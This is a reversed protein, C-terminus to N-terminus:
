NIVLVFILDDTYEVYNEIDTNGNRSDGSARMVIVYEGAELLHLSNKNVTKILEYETSYVDASDSLSTDEPVDFVVEGALILRPFENIDCESSEFLMNVGSGCGYMIQGDQHSTTGVVARRPSISEDGSRIALPGEYKAEEGGTESTVATETKMATTVPDSLAKNNDSSVTTTMDNKLCSTLLLLVLVVPLIFLLHLKSQRM